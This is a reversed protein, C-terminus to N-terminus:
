PLYSLLEKKHTNMVVTVNWSKEMSDFAKKLSKIEFKRVSEINLANYGEYSFDELRKIMFDIKEQQHEKTLQELEDLADKMKQIIKDLKKKHLESMSEMLCDYVQIKEEVVSNQPLENSFLPQGFRKILVLDTKRGFREYQYKISYFLHELIKINEVLSQTVHSKETLLYKKGIKIVLKLTRLVTLCDQIRQRSLFINKRERGLNLMKSYKHTINITTLLYTLEQLTLGEPHLGLMDLISSYQKNEFVNDLTIERM